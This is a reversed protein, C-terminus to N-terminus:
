PCTCGAPSNGVWGGDTCNDPVANGDKDITIPINPVAPVRLTPVCTLTITVCNVEERCTLITWQDCFVTPTGYACTRKRIFKQERKRHCQTAGNVTVCITPGWPDAPGMPRTSIPVYVAAMCGATALAGNVTVAAGHTDGSANFPHVTAAGAVIDARAASGCGSGVKEIPVSSSLYNTQALVEVVADHVTDDLTLPALPDDLM